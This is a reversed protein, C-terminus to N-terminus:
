AFRHGLRPKKAVLPMKLKQPDLGNAPADANTFGLCLCAYGVVPGVIGTVAANVKPCYASRCSRNGHSQPILVEPRPGSSYREHSVFKMAQPKGRRAPSAKVDRRRMGVIRAFAMDATERIDVSKIFVYKPLANNIPSLRSGLWQSSKLGVDAM